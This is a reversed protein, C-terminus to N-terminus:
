RSTGPQGVRRLVADDDALGSLATADDDDLLHLTDEGVALVMDDGHGDLLIRRGDSFWTFRGERVASGPASLRYRQDGSLTIVLDDGAGPARAYTGRWDVRHRADYLPMSVATVASQAGLIYAASEGDVGLALAGMTGVLGTVLTVPIIIRPVTRM